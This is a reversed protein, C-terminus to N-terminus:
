YAAVPARKERKDLWRSIMLKQVELSNAVRSGSSGKIWPSLVASAEQSPLAPGPFGDLLLANDPQAHHCHPQLTEQVM